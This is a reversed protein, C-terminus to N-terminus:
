IYTREAIVPNAAKDQLLVYGPKVVSILYSPSLHKSQM